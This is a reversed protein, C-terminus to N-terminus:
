LGLKEAVEAAIEDITRMEGGSVCEVTEWGLKKACYDAAIRSRRLYDVDREHIDKKEDHSDYRKDLLKQSVDPDVRLYIVNDPAPIGMLDYEYSFLWKLFGEWKDEPLKSCQHIANSTTYRDALIIGGGDYFEGWDSKYGAFRDVAFLSSAAYPNVSDPSTGFKGSLYMRLPASSDSEYNPFSVKRVSMGKQVLTDFLRATQTAKGSGDLGEIVILKGKM